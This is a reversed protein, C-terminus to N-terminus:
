VELTFRRTTWSCALGCMLGFVIAGTRDPGVAKAGNIASWVLPGSLIGLVSLTVFRWIGQVRYHKMLLISPIGLIVTGPLAMYLGFIALVPIFLFGILTGHSSMSGNELLAYAMMGVAGLVCGIVAACITSFFLRLMMTDNNTWM